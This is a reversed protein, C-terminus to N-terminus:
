HVAKFAGQITKPKFAIHAASRLIFDAKRILDLFRRGGM